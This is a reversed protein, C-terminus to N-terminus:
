NRGNWDADATHAGPDHLIQISEGHLDRNPTPVGATVISVDGSFLFITHVWTNFNNRQLAEDMEIKVNIASALGKLVGSTQARLAEQVQIQQYPPLGRDLLSHFDPRANSASRKQYLEHCVARYALLLCQEATGV